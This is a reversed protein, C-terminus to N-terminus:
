HQVVVKQTQRSGSGAVELFYMGSPLERTSITLTNSTCSGFYFRRGTIDYLSVQLPQTHRASTLTVYGNAPNPHVSFSSLQPGAEVGLKLVNIKKGWQVGPLKAYIVEEKYWLMPTPSAYYHFYLRVGFREVYSTVYV